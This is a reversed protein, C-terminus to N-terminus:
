AGQLHNSKSQNARAEIIQLNEHVHLGCVNRGQLPIIHDVHFDCGLSRFRACLDYVKKIEERDAWKPMSQLKAARRRNSKETVKGPNAKAWAAVYIARQETHTEYYRRNRANAAARNRKQSALKNALSQEPNAKRWARATDRRSQANAKAWETGQKAICEVCQWTSVYRECVHGHPCQRGTFYRKDGSKLAESRSRLNM